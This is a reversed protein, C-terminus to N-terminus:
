KLFYASTKSKVHMTYSVCPRPGESHKYLHVKIQEPSTLICCAARCARGSSCNSPCSGDHSLVPITTRAGAEATVQNVAHLLCCPRRASSGAPLAPTILRSPTCGLQTQTSTFPVHASCDAPLAFCAQCTMTKHMRATVFLALSCRFCGAPPAPCACSPRTIQVAAVVSLTPRCARTAQLCPLAPVVLASPACALQWLLLASCPFM